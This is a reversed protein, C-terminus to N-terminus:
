LFRASGSRSQGNPRPRDAGDGEDSITAGVGDIQGSLRNVDIVTPPTYLFGSEISLQLRPEIALGPSSKIGAVSRLRWGVPPWPEKGRIATLNCQSQVRVATKALNGPSQGPNRVAFPCRGSLSRVAAGDASRLLAPPGTADRSPHVAPRIAYGPDAAAWAGAAPGSTATPRRVRVPKATTDVVQNCIPSM